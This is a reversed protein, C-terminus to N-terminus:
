VSVRPSYSRNSRGSRVSRDKVTLYEYMNSKNRYGAGSETRCTQRSAAWTIPRRIPTSSSRASPPGAKAIRHRGDMVEGNAALIIPFSLDAEDIMRIHALLERWTQTEGDSSWPRDLEGLDEIIVQRLPRHRSLAILRDVDWAQLGRASPRFYYQKRM